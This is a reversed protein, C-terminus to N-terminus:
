WCCDTMVGCVITRQVKAEELIKALDTNIFADYTNKHVLKPWSASGSRDLYPQIDTQLEWGESGSAISGDPGWKRVLQNPSPVTTLEKQSHGHQTFIIPASTSQWYSILKKINALAKTTMPEFVRQMDIVLLATDPPPM